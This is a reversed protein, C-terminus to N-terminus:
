INININNNNKIDNIINTNNYLTAKLHCELDKKTKPDKIMATIDKVIKDGRKVDNLWDFEDVYEHKTENFYKVFMCSVTLPLKEIIETILPPLYQKDWRNVDVKVMAYPQNMNPYHISTNPAKGYMDTILKLARPRRKMDLLADFTRENLIKSFDEKGYVNIHIHQHIVQTNNTTNNTTNNIVQATKEHKENHHEECSNDEMNQKNRIPVNKCRYRKHKSLSQQHKFTRNCWECRGYFKQNNDQSNDQSNNQSNNKLQSNDQSNNKPQSNDQSNNESLKIHRKTKTHRIWNNQHSIWKQCINCNM